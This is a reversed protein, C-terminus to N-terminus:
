TSRVRLRFAAVASNRSRLLNKEWFRPLKPEKPENCRRQPCTKRQHPHARRRGRSARRDASPRLQLEGCMAILTGLLADAAEPFHICVMGLSHESTEVIASAISRKIREALEADLDDIM